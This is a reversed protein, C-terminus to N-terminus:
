IKTAIIISRKYNLFLILIVIFEVKFFDPYEDEEYYEKWDDVSKEFAENFSEYSM